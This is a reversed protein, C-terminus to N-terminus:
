MQWRSRFIKNGPILGWLEIYKWLKRLQRQYGLGLSILGGVIDHISNRSLATGGIYCMVLRGISYRIKKFRIKYQM